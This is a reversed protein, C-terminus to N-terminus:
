NTLVSEPPAKCSPRQLCRRILDRAFLVSVRKGEGCFHFYLRIPNTRISPMHLSEYCAANFWQRGLRPQNACPQDGKLFQSRASLGRGTWRSPCVNTRETTLEGLDAVVSMLTEGGGYREVASIGGTWKKGKDSAVQLDYQIYIGKNIRYPVVSGSFSSIEATEIQKYIEDANAPLHIANVRDLLEPHEALITKVEERADARAAPAYEQEILRAFRANYKDYTGKNLTERWQVDVASRLDPEHGAGVM